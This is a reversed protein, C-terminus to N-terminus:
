SDGGEGAASAQLSDLGTQDTAHWWTRLSECRGRGDLAALLIGDIARDSSAARWHAVGYTDGVGLVQAAFSVGPLEELLAAFVEVIAARGRVLDHFPTPQYTAGAAFLDSLRGADAAEWADGYRTLWSSFRDLATGAVTM